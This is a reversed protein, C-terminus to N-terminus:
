PEFVYPANGMTAIGKEMRGLSPRPRGIRGKFFAILRANRWWTNRSLLGQYGDDDPQDLDVVDVVVVDSNQGPKTFQTPSHEIYDISWVLLLHKMVHIPKLHGAAAEDDFLSM